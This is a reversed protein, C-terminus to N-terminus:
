LASALAMKKWRTGFSASKAKRAQHMRVQMKLGPTPPSTGMPPSAASKLADPQEVPPFPKQWFGVPLQAMDQMIM